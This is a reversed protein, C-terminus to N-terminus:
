RRCAALLEDLLQQSGAAVPRRRAAHDLTVLERGLADQAVGGAERLIMVAALYDWVGIMDDDFDVSGDFGGGGAIAVIDLATAGMARFQRPRFDSPPRANVAIIADALSPTPTPSASIPDGNRTAGQGRIASYRTGTRLNSVMAVMPVGDTVQCLATACWPLGISANTSGDLPDVVVVTATDHVRSPATVGTEESLVALGADHLMRLCVADIEVDITYQAARAGSLSWDDNSALLATTRDCIHGFLDVVADHDSSDILEKSMGRVVKNTQDVDRSPLTRM